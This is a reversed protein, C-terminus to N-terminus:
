QDADVDRVKILWKGDLKVLQDASVGVDVVDGSEKNMTLWYSHHIAHTDDIFEIFTDATMHYVGLAGLGDVFDFLAQKGKMSLNGAKFEGDETYVAAYAEANGTDLARAYRWMLAEIAERDEARDALVPGSVLMALCVGALSMGLKSM